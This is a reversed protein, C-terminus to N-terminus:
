LDLLGILDLFAACKTSSASIGPSFDSLDWPRVETPQFDPKKVVENAATYSYSVNSPKGSVVLELGYSGVNSADSLYINSTFISSSNGVKVLPTTYYKATM